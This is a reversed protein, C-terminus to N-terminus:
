LTKLYEIVAMREPESLHDGFTHGGNGRGPQTTDYVKRFEVPDTEKPDPARRLVKVKWGLRRPDYDERDTRYSRTFLKPRTKSNLLHYVTPVSGNHLYPATAWIGDLPPAQYGDTGIAKYDGAFWSKNYYEGFKPTIGDYRRRDTGIVKLPVVKNPYTWKEGYTGHCRACTANFIGKGEAALKHDIPLPYKPAELSLLYARIDKFDPEAKHITAPFNLPSLMFQMLSRVSRTDAGGTHYMTKKKKLLWWAPPDECLDDHLDLDLRTLRLALDPERYGLLFVAMGGAESTGRVRTFTMPSRMRRGAPGSLEEYFAQFDLSANGLGIYSKGLISGAHCILCDNTLGERKLFGATVTEKRLGMPLGGNPYPAPHLGYRQRFLRDYDAPAPKEQLGWHKWANDYATAAMTPPSYSKGLLLKKGREAPTEACATQGLLGGLLVLLAAPTCCKMSAVEMAVPTTTLTM